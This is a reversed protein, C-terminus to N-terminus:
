GGCPLARDWTQPVGPRAAVLEVTGDDQVVWGVAEVLEPQPEPRVVSVSLASDLSVGDRAHTRWDEWVVNAETRITATPDAPLGGRGTITFSNGALAACGSVVRDSPDKVQGSLEVLGASADVDPTTITVTGSFEAGLESTATIDSEPTLRDRFETGFIGQAAISVQGGRGEQANATIDSNELAVLTETEIDINGGDTNGANTSIRSRDRLQLSQTELTINGRDSQVTAASLSATDDLTISNARINLNGAAGTDIGSVQIAAGDRVTLRETAIDVDGANGAGRTEATLLSSFVRGNLATGTGIVDISESAQISLSGGVADTFTASNIEAGDRVILRNVDLTISGSDGPSLSSTIIGSPYLGTRPSRGSIEVLDAQISIRGGPGPGFPNSNILTGSGVKLSPTIITLSGGAGTGIAATSINGSLGLDITADVSGIAAATPAILEAVNPELRTLPKAGSIDVSESAILLLDGGVGEGFTQVQIEPGGRTVFRSTNIVLDGGTGSGFTTTSVTSTLPAIIGFTVLVPDPPGLPPPPASGSVEVLDEATIAITGGPLAGLTDAVIQSGGLVRVNQGRVQIDGGGEGSADIRAIDSLLVNRFTPVEEYELSFGNEIPNLGVLTNEAVAGVEIRGGPSTLSGGEFSVEGGVLALTSERSGQLGVTTENGEADAVTANSRNVINGPNGGFQLGIPVSVTLLPPANPDIASFFSGDAFDIRSATSALFSGGIDLQANPGLIIGNPNILFLNATANARILGDINSLNEGTVRSFINEITSNNNFFAEFDTPVSFERFSHFLNDGTQTGGEITLVRDSPTVVSNNPLSTDPIIQALSPHPFIWGLTLVGTIWTSACRQQM